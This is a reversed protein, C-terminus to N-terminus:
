FLRLSNIFLNNRLLRLPPWNWLGSPSPIPVNRLRSPFQGVLPQCYNEARVFSEVRTTGNSHPVKCSILDVAFPRWHMRISHAPLAAKTLPGRSPRCETAACPEKSHPPLRLAVGSQSAGRTTRTAFRRRRQAG